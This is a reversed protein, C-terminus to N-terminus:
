IFNSREMHEKIEELAEEMHDFRHSGGPYVVVKNYDTLVRQTHFSNLVEDGADLLILGKGGKSYEKYSNAIEKTLTIPEGYYDEKMGLYKKLTEYPYLCPNIATFPIDFRKGMRMAWYGGLSTGIIETPALEHIKDRILKSVEDYHKTYDIDFGVVEGLTELYKIKSNNRNFRSGFGHLYLIKEKM